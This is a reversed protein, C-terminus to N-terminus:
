HSVTTAIFSFEVFHCLREMRVLLESPIIYSGHEGYPEWRIYFSIVYKENLELYRKLQQSHPELINLLYEIHDKVRKLHHQSTLDVDWVSFSRRRIEEKDKKATPDYKKGIYNEGKQYAVTPQINLESTVTHPILDDARIRYVVFLNKVADAEDFSINQIVM